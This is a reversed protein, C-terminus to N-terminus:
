RLHHQPTALLARAIAGIAGNFTADVRTGSSVGAIALLQAKEKSSLKQHV